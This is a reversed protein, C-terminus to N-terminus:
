HHCGPTLLGEAVHSFELKETRSRVGLCCSQLSPFVSVCCWKWSHQHGLKILLNSCTLCSVACSCPCLWKYVSSLLLVVEDWRSSPLFIWTCSSAGSAKVVRAAEWKCRGFCMWNWMSWMLFTDTFWYPRRASWVDEELLAWSLAMTQSWRTVEM